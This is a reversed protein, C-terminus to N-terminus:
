DLPKPITHDLVITEDPAAFSDRAWEGETLCEFGDETVLWTDESKAGQVTPNWAYAMPATVAEDSDPTAIWERGAYGAAGGQHHHEWEGDWGVGDYADQIAAFIDGARGAEDITPGAVTQTAALAATQVRAAADHRERLWAPPDFAVTRTTSAYLGGRSATVSVHAYSGLPDDSVTYHRYAQVRDASGVLVVPARTDAVELNARVRAALERETTEPTADECATEVARAVDEGLARYADVDKTTLPQRLPSADVREFGPVEFDAAAPTSETAAVADALTDAYWSFTEVTIDEPLEEDRLRSAEITDTVVTVRDGDYGAAAVGIDGAADVVNDGGTLWAFSNPRAFWVSELGNAELYGDLRALHPDDMHGRRTGATYNM